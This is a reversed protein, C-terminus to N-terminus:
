MSKILIIGFYTATIGATVSLLINLTLNFFEGNQFLQISEYSFSSFTTYGGCFGTTLFIRWEPSLVDGKEALAYFIGILFCGLANAILTGYPFLTTCQRAVYIATLYRAISGLFGGTGIIILSKLM